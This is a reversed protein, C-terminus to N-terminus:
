RWLAPEKKTSISRTLNKEAKGCRFTGGTNTPGLTWGCGSVNYDIKSFLDNDDIYKALKLQAWTMKERTNLESISRVLSNEDASADLDVFKYVFISSIIAVLILVAIIEILTYGKENMM